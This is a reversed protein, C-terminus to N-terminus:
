DKRCNDPKGSSGSALDNGISSSSHATHNQLRRRTQMLMTILFGPLIGLLGRHLKLGVSVRGKLNLPVFYTPYSMKKFGNRRKFETLSSFTKNGYNYKAYIVFGSKQEECIEVAKAILLNMPRKDHHQSKALVQMFRAGGDVHVMKIFGILESGLYAGIFRSRDLYTANEAKVADFSKGYHWFRSKQRVPDANYVETIGRVLSDNFEVEVATVGMRKARKINRRSEQPLQEWWQSFSSVPIAAVNDWEFFHRHKPTPENFKQAFTFVDARLPSEMVGAILSESESDESKQLWEEDLISAIKLHGGKVIITRSGVRISPVKLPRGKVRIELLEANM